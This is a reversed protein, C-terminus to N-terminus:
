FIKRKILRQYLIDKQNSPIQLNIYSSSGQMNTLIHNKQQIHQCALIADPKKVDKCHNDLRANFSTESKGVHQKKCLTCEM